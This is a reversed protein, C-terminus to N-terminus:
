GDPRTTIMLCPASSQENRLTKYQIEQNKWHHNKEVTEDCTLSVDVRIHKMLFIETENGFTVAMIVTASHGTHSLAWCLTAPGAGEPSGKPGVPAGPFHLSLKIRVIMENVVFTGIRHVLHGLKM